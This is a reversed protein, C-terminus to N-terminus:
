ILVKLNRDDLLERCGPHAATLVKRCPCEVRSCEWTEPKPTRGCEACKTEAPEPTREGANALSM